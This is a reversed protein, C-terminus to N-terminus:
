QPEEGRWSGMEGELRDALRGLDCGLDEGLNALFSEHPTAPSFTDGTWDLLCGQVHRLDAIAARLSARFMGEPPDPWDAWGVLVLDYILKGFSRVAANAVPDTVFLLFVERFVPFEEYRKPDIVPPIAPPPEYGDDEPPPMPPRRGPPPPPPAPVPTCNQSLEPM